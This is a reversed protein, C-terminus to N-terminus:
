KKGTKRSAQASASEDRPPKFFEKDLRLVWHSALSTLTEGTDISLFPPAENRVILIASAYGPCQGSGAVPTATLFINWTSQRESIEIYRLKRLETRFGDLLQKDYQDDSLATVSVRVPKVIEQGMVTPSLFLFAALFLNKM